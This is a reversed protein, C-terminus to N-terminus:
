QREKLTSFNAASLPATTCHITFFCYRMSNSVLPVCVCSCSVELQAYAQRTVRSYIRHRKSNSPGAAAMQLELWLLLDRDRGAFGREGQLCLHGAPPLLAVVLLPIFRPL